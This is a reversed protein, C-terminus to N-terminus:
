SFYRDWFYTLMIHKQLNGSYTDTTAVEMLPRGLVTPRNVVRNGEAMFESSRDTFNSLAYHAKGLTISNAAFGGGDDIGIAREAANATVVEIRRTLTKTVADVPRHGLADSHWSATQM